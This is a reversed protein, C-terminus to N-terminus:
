CRDLTEVLLREALKNRGKVALKRYTRTLHQEVTSVTIRLEGSIERNTYGLAALSAVRLEADSLAYSLDAVLSNSPRPARQRWGARGGDIHASEGLAATVGLYRRRREDTTLGRLVAFQAARHRYRGSVLLGAGNLAQVCDLAATRNLGLSRGALDLSGREGLVALVQAMAIDDAPARRLFGSVAADFAEGAVIRRPSRSSLYDEALARVLMPIGGSIAHCEATLRRATSTGLSRALVRVIDQPTFPALRLRHVHPDYLPDGEAPQFDGRRDPEAFVALIRASPLRRVLHRLCHLSADDANRLEDVCVLVPGRQALQLLVSALNHAIEELRKSIAGAPVTPPIACQALWARTAPCLPASRLLGRMVGLPVQRARDSCNATLVVAGSNLARSSLHHLLETKGSAMPGTVVAAYGMGRASRHFLNELFSLEKDRDIM